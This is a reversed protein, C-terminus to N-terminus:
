HDSLTVWYTQFSNDGAVDSVASPLHWPSQVSLYFATGPLAEFEFTAIGEMGTQTQAVGGAGDLALSVLAGPIPRGYADRVAVDYVYSRGYVATAGDDYAVAISFAENGDAAYFECGTGALLLVLGIGVTKLTQKANM